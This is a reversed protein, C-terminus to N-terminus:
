DFSHNKWYDYISTLTPNYLFSLALSNISKFQPTPSSEKSDRPICPSGVLGDQLLDTRFIWQFPQHQLQFELVGAVQHSSSVWQFLGQHPSLSFAPPYPLSLPHSPQIADSVWHVHTKTLEPLYHLVPLGPTSCDMPDCLTLCPQAVSSFQVSCLRTGQPQLVSTWNRWIWWCSAAWAGLPRDRTRADWLCSFWPSDKENKCRQSEMQQMEGTSGTSSLERSKLVCASVRPEGM